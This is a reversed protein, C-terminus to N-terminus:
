FLPYIIKGFNFGPLKVPNQLNLLSNDGKTLDELDRYDEGFVISSSNVLIEVLLYACAVLVIILVFILSIRAIATISM